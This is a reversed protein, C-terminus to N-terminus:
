IAPIEFRFRTGARETSEVSVSGGHSLAIAKVISLGLGVGGSARSRARDARYFREFLHPLHEAAIGAGDDAVELVAMNGERVVRLEIRGGANSYKIANDLLNVIVQRLRVGVGNVVVKDATDLVLELNKEVFLLRMQEATGRALENFDLPEFPATEHG